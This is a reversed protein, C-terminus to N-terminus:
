DQEEGAAASRQGLQFAIMNGQIPLVQRVVYSTGRCSVEKGVVQSSGFLEWATDESIICGQGDGWIPLQCGEFVLGPEGCLLIADATSTRSLNKNEVAIGEKQGWICFAPLLQRGEEADESDEEARDMVEVGESISIPSELHFMVKGLALSGWAAASLYLLVMALVLFGVAALHKAYKGM